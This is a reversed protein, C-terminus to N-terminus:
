WGTKAGDDPPPCTKATLNVPPSYPRDIRNPPASRFEELGALAEPAFRDTRAHTLFVDLVRRLENDIEDVAWLSEKGAVFNLNRRKDTMHAVQKDCKKKVDVLIPPVTAIRSKWDSDYDEAGLDNGQLSKFGDRGAFFFYSIARCHIAFSEVLANHVADIGGFSGSRLLVSVACFQHFEYWLTKSDAQLRQGTGQASM